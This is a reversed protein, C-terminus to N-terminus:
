PIDAESPNASLINGSVGFVADQSVNALPELRCIENDFHGLDYDLLSVLWVRYPHEASTGGVDRFPGSGSRYGAEELM